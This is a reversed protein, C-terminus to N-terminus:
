WSLMGVLALQAASAIVSWCVAALHRGWLHVGNRNLVQCHFIDLPCCRLPPTLLSLHSLIYGKGLPLHSVPQCLADNTFVSCHVPSGPGYSRSQLLPPGTCPRAPPRHQEHAQATSSLRPGQAACVSWACDCLDCVQSRVVCVFCFYTGNNQFLQCVFHYEYSKRVSNCIIGICMVVKTKGEWTTLWYFSRKLNEVYHYPVRLTLNLPSTCM